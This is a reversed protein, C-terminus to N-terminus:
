RGCGVPWWWEGGQGPCSWLLTKPDFRRGSPDRTELHLHPRSTYVGPQTPIAKGTRATYAIIQGQKVTDGQQIQIRDIHYYFIDVGKHRLILNPHLWQGDSRTEIWLVQGDAAAQVPTGLNVALDLGQHALGASWYQPPQEGYDTMIFPGSQACGTIALALALTLTKLM